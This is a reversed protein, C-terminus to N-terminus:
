RAAAPKAAPNAAPQKAPDVLVYTTATCKATITSSQEPKDKAKIGVDSVNIIRSLKSLRDLFVGVNHYTGDFEVEHPLETYLTKTAVQGPRFSVIKLNSQVALEQMRGILDGVDKEEPLVAKLGELRAQLEKVQANFQPLRRETAHGKDIEARLAQLRAQKTAAEEYSPSAYLFYFAAVGALSLACFVGLQAHWPLKSLSLNM